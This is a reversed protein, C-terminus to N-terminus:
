EGKNPAMRWFIHLVCWIKERKGKTRVMESKKVELVGIVVRDLMCLCLGKSSKPVGGRAM